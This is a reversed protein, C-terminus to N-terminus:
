SSFNSADHIVLQLFSLPVLSNRATKLTFSTAVGILGKIAIPPILKKGWYSIIVMSNFEHSFDIMPDNCNDILYNRITCAVKEM